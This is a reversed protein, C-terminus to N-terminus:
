KIVANKNGLYLYGIGFIMLVFVMFYVQRKISYVSSTLPVNHQSM